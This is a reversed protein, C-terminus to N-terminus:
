KGGGGDGGATNHVLYKTGKATSVYFNHTDDVHLNHLTRNVRKYDISFIEVMRGEVHVFDGMILRSVEKWGDQSLLREGGTTELEGNIVYLHNSDVSYRDVVQKSVQKDYGVDYTMVKDGTEVQDFPKYNGDEMQVLANPLFCGLSQEMLIERAKMARERQKKLDYLEYSLNVMREENEAYRKAKPSNGMPTPGELWGRVELYEEKLKEHTKEILYIDADAEEVTLYDKTQKTPFTTSSCGLLSLGVGLILVFLIYRCDSIKGM